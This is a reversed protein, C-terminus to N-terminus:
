SNRAFRLRRRRRYVGGACELSLVTWGGGVGSSLDLESNVSHYTDPGVGDPFDTTVIAVPM